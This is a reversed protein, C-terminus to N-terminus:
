EPFYRRRIWFDASLYRGGGSIFLALLMVLYTVAWEVGNNSIVFNGSATLWDYHGHEQLISRAAQLREQAEALDAPPFPSNGDVVAQWGHELHVTVIAVIMTVMLPITAWRVGFGLLLMPSGFVEAATALLAMLWPLPLGLGWESNGFWEVVNEFGNVKNMGATLFVPVLYLRLALPALFDINRGLDMWKQFQILLRIM